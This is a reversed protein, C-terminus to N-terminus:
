VVNTLWTKCNTEHRLIPFKGCNFKPHMEKDCLHIIIASNLRSCVWNTGHQRLQNKNSIVLLWHSHCHLLILVRNFNKVYKVDESNSKYDSCNRHTRKIESQCSSTRKHNIWRTQGRETTCSAAFMVRIWCGGPSRPRSSHKTEATNKGLPQILARIEKLAPLFM